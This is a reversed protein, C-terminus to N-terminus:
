KIKNDNKIAEEFLQPNLNLDELDIDLFVPILRNQIIPNVTTPFGCSLTIIKDGDEFYLEKAASMLLLNASSGANCLLGHNRDSIKALKKEAQVTFSGASWWDSFIADMMGHYEEVGLSPGAYRIKKRDLNQEDKKKVWESFLVKIQYELDKKNM